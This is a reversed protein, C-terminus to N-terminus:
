WVLVGSGPCGLEKFYGPYVKNTKWPTSFQEVRDRPVPIVGPLPHPYTYHMRSVCGTRRDQYRVEPLAQESAATRLKRTRRDKPANTQPICLGVPVPFSDRIYSGHQPDDNEGNSSQAHLYM